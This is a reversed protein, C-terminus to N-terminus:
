TSFDFCDEYLLGHFILVLNFGMIMKFYKSPYNRNLILVIILVILNIFWHHMHKGFLYIHSDKVLSGINIKIKPASKTKIQLGFFIITFIIGGIIGILLELNINYNNVMYSNYLLLFIIKNYNSILIIFNSSIINNLSITILYM